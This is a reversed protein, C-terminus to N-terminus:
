VYAFGVRVMGVVHDAHTCVTGLQYCHVVVSFRSLTVDTLHSAAMITSFRVSATRLWWVCKTWYCFCWPTHYHCSLSQSTLHRQGLKAARGYECANETRCTDARSQERRLSFLSPKLSPVLSRHCLRESPMCRGCGYLWHRGGSDDVAFM